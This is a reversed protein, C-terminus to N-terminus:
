MTTRFGRTMPSIASAFPEWSPRARTAAAVDSTEPIMVMRIATIALCGKAIDAPRPMLAKRAAVMAVVGFRVQGSSIPMTTHAPTMMNTRTSVPKRVATNLATGSDSFTAITTPM